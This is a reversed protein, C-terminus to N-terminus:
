RGDESVLQLLRIRVAQLGRQRTLSLTKLLGLTDVPDYGVKLSHVVHGPDGSFCDCILIVLGRVLPSESDGVFSIHSSTLHPVIWVQSQCGLVRHTDVRYEPQLPARRRSRELVATLREQLDEIVLLDNIAALPISNM